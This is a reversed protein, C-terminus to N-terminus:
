FISLDFGDFELEIGKTKKEYYIIPIEISQNLHKEVKYTSSKIQVPVEGIYGDINKSEEDSNALRWGKGVKNAIFALIAQQVKLGCYTKNYVLDKVWNRVMERDIQPAADRIKNVMGYIKDTANEIANPMKDDYWAIWESLTKGDFEQILDSMQGVVNARTGQANQNAWNIIQSTYKPFQYESANSLRMVDETTLKLKTM